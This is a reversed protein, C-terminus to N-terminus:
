KYDEVQKSNNAIVEDVIKELAETDNKQRL